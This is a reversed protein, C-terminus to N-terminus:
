TVRRREAMARLISVHQLWASEGPDSSYLEAARSLHEAEDPALAMSAAFRRLSPWQSSPDHERGPEPAKGRGLLLWDASVRLAACISAVIDASTAQVGREVKSLNQPDCGVRAALALQTFGRLRRAEAIRRGMAKPGCLAADASAESM